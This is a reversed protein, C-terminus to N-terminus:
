PNWGSSFLAYEICASASLPVSTKGPLIASEMEFGTGEKARDMAEPQIVIGYTISQELDDTHFDILGIPSNNFGQQANGRRTNKWLELRTEDIAHTADLPIFNKLRLLGETSTLSDRNIQGLMLRFPLTMDSPQITVECRAIFPKDIIPKEVLNFECIFAM